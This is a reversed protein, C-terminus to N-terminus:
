LRPQRPRDAHAVIATRAELADGLHGGDRRVHVLNLQVRAHGAPVGSPEDAVARPLLSLHLGISRQRM